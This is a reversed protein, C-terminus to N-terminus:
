SLDGEKYRKAKEEGRLVRLAGKALAEMEFEGEFVFIKAMWGIYEQLEEIFLSDYAVGGTISIADVSGGLSAYMSGIEKAVQYVMAKYVLSAKSNGEEIMRRVERLDPTGLYAKMGGNGALVRKIEAFGLGSDRAFNVLSLPPLGGTREPSFPGMENANNLDIARGKKIAVISFGGGLHAVILNVEEFRRGIEEATKRAVARVNLAHFLSRKKVFPLGMFRAVEELEDVSVPDVIFAPIDAKKALEFAIIGGLNSAHEWPKGRKLDQLVRPTIIYTGGELPDLIGGRGVVADFSSLDEGKRELVSMIKEMRYAYQDVVRKFTSIEQVPHYLTERWLEGKDSFSAVKTSTSGPNIVLVKM